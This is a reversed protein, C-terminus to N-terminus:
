PAPNTADVFFENSALLTVVISRLFVNEHKMQSLYLNIEPQTPNRNLVFNYAEILLSQRGLDSQLLGHAVQIRPVGASLQREIHIDPFTTGFVATLLGQFYTTYTGGSANYFLKSGLVAAQASTNTARATHIVAKVQGPTGDQGLYLRFAIQVSNTRAEKGKSIESAISYRSRGKAFQKNWYSVEAATISRNLLIEFVRNLWQDNGSGVNVTVAASVNSKFNNDGLYEATISNLTIPLTTTLTAVGGSLTATGISTGNNLFEVSGTPSGAGPSVATVHATLTVSQSASPNTSSANLSVSTASKSITVSGTSTSAKFNTDGSYNITITDTGTPLISTTISGAASALTVTGLSTSGNVFQVTGTPTGIGPGVVNVHATITVTQGFVPASPSTTITANTSAQGLTITTATSTQGNFNSDGLYQVTISNPGLALSTTVISGTGSALSATGLETTGNFFKVMGSPTGAGPAVAQVTAFITVSQGFVPTTTSPIIVTTSDSKAVTVKVPLSTSGAFNTDGAYQATISNDAVPLTTVNLMASGSSLLVTGLSTKGNFFQVNGSPMPSGAPGTVTATLGVSQGFVSSAPSFTVATESQDLETLVVSNPAATTGAYSISFPKGGNEGIRIISGEPQGNFTGSIASSGTNNLITYTSGLTPTFHTGLTGSLNAGSLSIMGAAKVQSYGGVGSGPTTGDLVFMFTSNVSSSDAALAFNDADTLIGPAPNGPNITGGASAIANVTGIGGLTTGKAANVASGNQNGDVLLTGANLQTSGSYTNDATLDLTGGGAKTIGLTGSVVGGLVLTATSNDVTVTLALPLSIPIDVTSSNSTQSSDISAFSATSGNSASISYGDGAITLAGFAINGALDDTNALRPAGAPFVIDSGATPVTDWNGPTSWNADAGLGKWTSLVLRVELQELAISRRRSRRLVRRDARSEAGLLGRRVGNFWMTFAGFILITRRKLRV